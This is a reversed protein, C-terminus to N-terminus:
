EIVAGALALLKNPVALGLTKATRLNTGFEVKTPQMVPLDAAKEDKLIHGVDVSVLRAANDRDTGSAL